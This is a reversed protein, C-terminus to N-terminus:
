IEKIQDLTNVIVHTQYYYKGTKQGGSYLNVKIRQVEGTVEIKKSLFYVKPSLGKDRIFAKVFEPSLAISISQSDRYDDETNLYVKGNLKGSAKVEFQYTGYVSSSASGAVAAILDVNQQLNFTSSCAGLLLTSVLVLYKM